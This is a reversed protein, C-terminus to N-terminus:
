PVPLDIKVNWLWPLRDEKDIDAAVAAFYPSSPDSPCTATRITSRLSAPLTIETLATCDLFAGDEIQTLQGNEAFTVRKLNTCVRFVDYKVTTLSAPFTIETLATCERFASSDLTTLQADAAFTVTKLNTCGRFVDDKVTTVSAPITFSELGSLNFANEGIETMSSSLTVQTLSPCRAFTFSPLATLHHTEFTVTKLDPCGYFVFGEMTEVSSPITISELSSSTFANNELIKVSPPITIEDLNRCDCFAYWGLTEIACGEAWRIETVASSPHFVTNVTGISSGGTSRMERVPVGGLTAPVTVVSQVEEARIIEAYRSGDSDDTKVNYTWTVGDITVQDAFGPAAACLAWIWFVFRKM